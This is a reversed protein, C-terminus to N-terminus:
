ELQIDFINKDMEDFTNLKPHMKHSVKPFKTLNSILLITLSQEGLSEIGM